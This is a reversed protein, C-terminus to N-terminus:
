SRSSRTWTLDVPSATVMVSGDPAVVPHYGRFSVGPLKASQWLRRGDASISRM